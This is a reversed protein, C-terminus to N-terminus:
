RVRYFNPSLEGDNTKFCDNIVFTENTPSLMWKGFRGAQTTVPTQLSARDQKSHFCNSSTTFLQFPKELNSIPTLDDPLLCHQPESNIDNKKKSKM